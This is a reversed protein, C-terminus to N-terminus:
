IFFIGSPLKIIRFLKIIRVRSLILSFLLTRSTFLTVILAMNLVCCLNWQVLLAEGHM